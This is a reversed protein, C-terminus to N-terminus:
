GPGSPYIQDPLNYPKILQVQFKVKADDTFHTIIMLM